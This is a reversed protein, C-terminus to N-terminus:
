LRNLWDHVRSPLPEFYLVATVSFLNLVSDYSFATFSSSLVVQSTEPSLSPLLDFLHSTCGRCWTAESTEHSLLSAKWLVTINDELELSLSYTNQAFGTLLHGIVNGVNTVKHTLTM